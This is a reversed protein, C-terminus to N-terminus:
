EKVWFWSHNDEGTLFWPAVRFSKVWASVAIIVNNQLGEKRRQYDHGAIIGGVHVKPIWAQLDAIVFPLTHNADIYVFDLSDRMFQKAAEVSYSRVLVANYQALRAETAKYFNDLKEQNVHDRYNSYRSWADVCFLKLNPNRSLLCESYAGQEVGVEAGIACGLEALLSAFGRRDITQLTIPSKIDSPKAGGFDIQFKEIIYNLANPNM